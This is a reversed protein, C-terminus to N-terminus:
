STTQQSTFVTNYNEQKPRFYLFAMVGAGVFSLIFLVLFVIFPAKYTKKNETKDCTQKDNLKYGACCGTAKVKGNEVVFKTIHEDYGQHNGRTILTQISTGQTGQLNRKSSGAKFLTNLDTQELKLGSIDVKDADIGELMGAVKAEEDTVIKSLDIKLYKETCGAFMGEFNTVGQGAQEVVLEKLTAVGNFFNSMDTIDEKYIMRVSQSISNEQLRRNPNSIEGLLINNKVSYNPKKANNNLYTGDFNDSYTSIMIMKAGSEIESLLTPKGNIAVKGNTAQICYDKNKCKVCDPIITCLHCKDNELYYEQFCATAKGDKFASAGELGNEAAYKMASAEDLVINAHPSDKLLDSISVGANSLDVGGLDVNELNGCGDFMGSASTIKAGLDGFDVNKLNECGNFMGDLAKINSADSSDVSFETLDKNGNFMNSLSNADGDLDMSVDNEGDALDVFNSELLHRLRTINQENFSYSHEEMQITIIQNVMLRFLLSFFYFPRFRRPKVFVLSMSMGQKDRKFKRTRMNPTDEVCKGNVVIYGRSCKTCKDEDSCKECFEGLYDSCATCNNDKIFFGKECKKCIDYDKPDCRKCNVDIKCADPEKKLCQQQENLSFNPKCEACIKHDAEDCKACNEIANESTMCETGPKPVCIGDTEDLDYNEECATCEKFGKGGCSVCNEIADDGARCAERDILNCVGGNEEDLEFFPKCLGCKTPEEDKCYWCNLIPAEGNLCEFGEEAVCQGDETKEYYDFCWGCKKSDTINCMWCNEVYDTTLCEFGTREVCQENELQYGPKCRSCINPNAHDCSKCNPFEGSGLCLANPKIECKGEANLKYNARCAFCIDTSFFNCMACNEDAFCEFGPKFDCTGDEKQKFGPYCKGCKTSDADDCKRCFPDVFCEFGAGLQCKGDVLDYYRQCEACKKNDTDDCKKCKEVPDAGVICEFKPDVECKGDEGPIYHSKCKGCKDTNTSDCYLCNTDEALCKFKLGIECNDKAENLAYFPKCRKCEEDSECLTCGPIKDFCGEGDLKCNGGPNLTYGEKCEKCKKPKAPDCKECKGKNTGKKCENSAKICLGEELDYGRACEMCSEGDCQICTGINEDHICKYGEEEPNICQGNGLPILGEQCISNIDTCIGDENPIFGLRCEGCHEKNESDCQICTGWNGENGEKTFCEYGEGEPKFCTGTGMPIFGEKCKGCLSPEKADCAECNEINEGTLCENEKSLCKDEVLTCKGKGKTECLEATLEQCDSIESGEEGNGEEEEKKEDGAGGEEEKKGISGDSLKGDKDYCKGDDRLEYDPKCKQCKTNDGGDCIRCYNDTDRCKEWPGKCYGDPQIEYTNGCKGCKMPDTTDCAECQDKGYPETHCDDSRVFNYSLMLCIIVFTTKM